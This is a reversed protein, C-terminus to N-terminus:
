SPILSEIYSRRKKSKIESERRVAEARTEFIEIYVIQWNCAGLNKRVIHENLLRNVDETQGIYYRDKEASYLIYVTYLMFSFIGSIRSKTSFIPTSGIVEQM